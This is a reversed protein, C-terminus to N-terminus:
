KELRVVQGQRDSRYVWTQCGNSLTVRWGEVLAQTCLEDPQPLELCGDSWTEQSSETINLESVPIDVQRSLEQRVAAAVTDPLQASRDGQNESAEQAIATHNPAAVASSFLVPSLGLLVSTLVIVSIQQLQAVFGFKM